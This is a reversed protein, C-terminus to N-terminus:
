NLSNKNQEIIKKNVREYFNGDNVQIEPTSNGAYAGGMEKAVQELVKCAETLNGQQLLKEYIKQLEKLRYNKHSIPIQSSDAIFRDRTEDFLHRWKQALERSGQSGNPNYYAVQAQSVEVDFRKKLQAVIENPAELCALQKVIFAKHKNKLKAM